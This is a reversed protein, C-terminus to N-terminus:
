KCYCRVEGYLLYHDKIMIKGCGLYAGLAGSSHQEMNQLQKILTGNVSANETHLALLVEEVAISGPKPVKLNSTCAQDPLALKDNAKHVPSAAAGSSGQANINSETALDERKTNTDSISGHAPFAASNITPSCGGLAAGHPQVQRQVRVAYM